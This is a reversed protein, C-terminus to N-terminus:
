TREGLAKMLLSFAFHVLMMWIVIFFLYSQIVNYDRQSISNILFYSIGPIAFVFEVVASGGIVRAFRSIIASCLGILAPRLGGKLLVEGQLFGRAMEARIYPQERLMLFHKRMIRSISGVSSIMLIGIALLMRVKIDGTFIKFLRYKVGIYYIVIVSLIFSPVTQSFLSLATTFRDFFGGKKLSAFYGGFFGFFGSLFLGGLGLGLSYPIGRFIEKRIDQKTIFSKGWDGQLFATVWRGYQIYLPKNLGWQLEVALRNEETRPLQLSQLLMDVPDVPMSRTLVFLVVSILFLLIIYRFLVKLIKILM